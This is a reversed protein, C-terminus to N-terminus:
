AAARRTFTLPLAKMELMAITPVYSIEEAPVALRINDLRRDIERAATRVQMRALAQGVCRHIGVGFALHQGINDRESDFRVPDAFIAEDESGSGFLLLIQANAPIKVGALEVDCTTVRCLGRVPAGLRISEEVFRSLKLDDDVAERLQAAVDPSTAVQMLLNSLATSITDVGGILLARSLAVVENDTLTAKGEGDIRATVLDSIMDEGPNAERERVLKLIYRQLEAILAGNRQLDEPTQMGSFQANYAHAWALVKQPDADTLALQSCMFGITMPVAFDAMGDARGLDAVKEIQAVVLDRVLPELLKLRRPTFANELIKRIRGHKPPDSMIYDPIYGGGDRELIAKLEELHGQGWLRHYGLELSFIEWNRMVEALDDHRSVVYMDLKPDYHVPARARLARYYPSPQFMVEPDALSFTAPDPLDAAHAVVDLSM